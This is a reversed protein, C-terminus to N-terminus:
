KKGEGKRVESASFTRTQRPDKHLVPVYVEYVDQGAPGFHHRRIIGELWYTGDYSRVRVQVRGSVRKKLIADIEKWSRM